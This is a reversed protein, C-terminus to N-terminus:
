LAVPRSGEGSATLPPAELRDLVRRWGNRAIRGPASMGDIAEQEVLHFGFAEHRRGISVRPDDKAPQREHEGSQRWGDLLHLLKHLFSRHIALLRDGVGSIAKKCRPCKAFAPRAM